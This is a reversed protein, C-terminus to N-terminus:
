QIPLNTYKFATCAIIEAAKIVQEINIWEDEAHAQAIDGPGFVVAPIGNKKFVSADTGYKAGKIKSETLNYEFLCESLLKVIEENEELEMTPSEIFPKHREIRLLPSKDLLKAINMDIEDLIEKSDEGPIMRRDLTISCKNPIINSQSGGGIINISLSPSGVLPHKKNQLNPIINRRIMDIVENMYYIANEGKEPESSHASLGRTVIDWRLCGQHAIVIDLNTPEGVISADFRHDQELLHSVGMQTHEEDIVAALYLNGKLSVKREKLIEMALIMSALSGKDDCAGRGYIKGDKVTPLFPPIKMNKIGVTDMHAELVLNNGNGDGEIVGIVNFRNETVPLLKNNIDIGNLYDSIFFAIEREGTSKDDKLPNISNIRILEGLLNIVKKEGIMDKFNIENEM